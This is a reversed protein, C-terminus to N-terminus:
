TRAGGWVAVPWRGPGGARVAPGGVAPPPTVQVPRRRTLDPLAVSAPPNTKGFVPASLTEKGGSSEVALVLRAAQVAARKKHRAPGRGPNEVPRCLAPTEARAGPRHDGTGALSVAGPNEGFVPTSLTM